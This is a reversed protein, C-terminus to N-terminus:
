RKEQLELNQKIKMISENANLPVKKAQKQKSSFFGMIFNHQQNNIIFTRVSSNHNERIIESYHAFQRSGFFLRPTTESIKTEIRALVSQTSQRNSYALLVKSTPRASSSSLQKIHFVTIIRQISVNEFTKLRKEVPKSSCPVPSSTLPVRSLPVSNCVWKETYAVSHIM